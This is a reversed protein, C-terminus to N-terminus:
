GSWQTARVVHLEDTSDTEGDRGFIWGWLMVEEWCRGRCGWTVIELQHWTAYPIVQISFKSIDVPFTVEAARM